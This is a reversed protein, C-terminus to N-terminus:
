VSIRGFELETAFRYRTKYNVGSLAAGLAISYINFNNDLIEKNKIIEPADVMHVPLALEKGLYEKLGFLFSGGGDLILNAPYSSSVQYFYEISRSIERLFPTFMGLLAESVIMKSYGVEVPLKEKKWVEAEPISINLSSSIIETAMNGGFRLLRMVRIIGNNSMYLITDSAGINLLIFNEETFPIVNLQCIYEPEIVEPFLGSERASTYITRALRKPIGATLLKVEKNKEDTELTFYDFAVLGPDVDYRSSIELKVAEYLEKEPLIPLSFVRLFENEGKWSISVRKSNFDGQEWVESLIDIFLPVNQFEGNEIIKEPYVLSIANEVYIGDDRSDIGVAKISSEGIDLGVISNVRKLRM